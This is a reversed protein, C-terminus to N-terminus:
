LYMTKVEGNTVLCHLSEETLIIEFMTNKLLLILLVLRVNAKSVDAHQMRDRKLRKQTQKGLIHSYSVVLAM